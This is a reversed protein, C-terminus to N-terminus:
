SGAALFPVVTVSVKTYDWLRALCTDYYDYSRSRLGGWANM